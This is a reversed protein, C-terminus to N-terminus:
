RPPPLTYTPIPPQQGIRNWSTGYAQAHDIKDGVKYEFKFLSPFSSSSTEKSAIPVPTVGVVRITGTELKVDPGGLVKQGFLEWKVDKATFGYTNVNIYNYYRQSQVDVAGLSGGVLHALQGTSLLTKKDFEDVSPHIDRSLRTM